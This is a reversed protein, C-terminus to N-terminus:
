APETRPTSHDGILAPIDAVSGILHTHPERQLREKPVPGTLVGVVATVGANTGSQLDLPTDGVNVVESVSTVGTAEMAHFIMFPAPRGQRVDSSSVVADIMGRWGTQELILENVERYFGTTTAIKIKRKALWKFTAEAGSIPTVGQRYRGELLVRFEAYTQEILPGRDSATGFQEEVFHRIVERKSAGRWEMLQGDAISIGNKRLAQQFADAVEGHDEIITGAVDFVVLRVTQM